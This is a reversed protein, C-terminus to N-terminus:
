KLIAGKKVTITVYRDLFGSMVPKIWNYIFFKCKSAKANTNAPIQHLTEKTINWKRPVDM